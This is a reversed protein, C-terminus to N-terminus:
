NIYLVSILFLSAVESAITDTCDHLFIHNKKDHNHLYNHSYESSSFYTKYNIHASRDKTVFLPPGLKGGLSPGLEMHDHCWLVHVCIHYICNYMDLEIPQRITYPIKTHM